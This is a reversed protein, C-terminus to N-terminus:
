ADYDLFPPSYAIGGESVMKLANGVEKPDLFSGARCSVMGRVMNVARQFDLASHRLVKFQEM